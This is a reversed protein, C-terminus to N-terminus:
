ARSGPWPRIAARSLLMTILLWTAVFLALSSAVVRRRIGSIGLALRAQRVALGRARRDSPSPTM